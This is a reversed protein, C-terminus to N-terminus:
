STRKATKEALYATCLATIVPTHRAKAAKLRTVEREVTLVNGARMAEKVRQINENAALLVHSTEAVLAVVTAYTAVARQTDENLVIATLPDARKARLASLLGDRVAQWASAIATTNLEIEPVSCLTSWFRRREKATDIQREFGALADGALITELQTQTASLETQLHRYSDGFYARYYSFAQSRQLEQLCFPCNAEATANM